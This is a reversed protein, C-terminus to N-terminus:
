STLGGHSRPGYSMVHGFCFMLDACSRLVVVSCGFLVSLWVFAKDCWILEALMAVLCPQHSSGLHPSILHCVFVCCVLYFSLCVVHWLGSFSQCLMQAALFCGAPIQLMLCRVGDGLEVVNVWVSSPRTM